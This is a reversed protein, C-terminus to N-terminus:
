RVQVTVPRCTVVFTKLTPMRVCSQCVASYSRWIKANAPRKWFRIPGCGYATYIPHGFINFLAFFSQILSLYLMKEHKRVSVKTQESQVVVRENNFSFDFTVSWKRACLLYYGIKERERATQILFLNSKKSSSFLQDVSWHSKLDASQVFHLCALKISKLRNTAMAFEEKLRSVARLATASKNSKLRSTAM